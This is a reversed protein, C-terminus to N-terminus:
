GKGPGEAIFLGGKKGLVTGLGQHVEAQFGEFPIREGDISIYGEKQRPVVRYGSIKVYKVDGEDILGGKGVMDALAMARRRKIDGDVCLLDMMGDSPLSTPFVKSNAAMYAMNGCYFNGLNDYPQMEWGEPLPGNATGYRLTPLSTAEEEEASVTTAPPGESSIASFHKHYARKIDNKDAIEVKIAVDVPWLTQKILRQVYGVTFRADGLWRMNETALDSEAIIGIAQSLFSLRRETGQTISVLDLPMRIGKVVALAALAPDDTGNLNWSMGNGSGCPLQVVAVKRLARRPYKQKALGNFVEHPVGDGSCCAVVDYAEVDLKEAIDEAHKLHTSVEEDLKCGAAVFIPKISRAYIKQARGTGGHPNIIVKIRKSRQSSTYARTLIQDVFFTAAATDSSSLSFTASTPAISKSTKQVHNITINSELLSVYLIDYLPIIQSSSSDSFGCILLDRRECHVVVHRVERRFVFLRVGLM